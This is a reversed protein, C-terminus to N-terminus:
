GFFLKQSFDYRIGGDAALFQLMGRRSLLVEGM